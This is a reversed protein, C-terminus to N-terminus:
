VKISLLGMGLSTLSQCTLTMSLLGMGLSTLSQYVVLGHRILDFNSIEPDYGMGLSTLSQYVVLGHRILDFKSMDPDYVVLGHRILDFKSLCCAWSLIEFVDTSQISSAVKGM